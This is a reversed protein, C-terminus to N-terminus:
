VKTFETCNYDHKCFHSATNTYEALIMEVFAVRRKLNIEYVGYRAGEMSGKHAIYRRKSKAVVNCKM